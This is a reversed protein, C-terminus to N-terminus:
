LGRNRKRCYALAAAIMHVREVHQAHTIAPHITAPSLYLWEGDRKFIHPKTLGLFSIAKARFLSVGM